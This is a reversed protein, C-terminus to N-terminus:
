GFVGDSGPFRFARFVLTANHGGFGFSNSLTVQLDAQRAQNPVYDLDCAPDPSHLNITPPSLGPVCHKSVSPPKWRGVSAALPRDHIQHFQDACVPCTHRTSTSPGLKTPDRAPTGTGHANIYSVNAPALGARRVALAMCQARRM